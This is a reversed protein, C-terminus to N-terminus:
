FPKKGCHSQNHRSLSNSSTFVQSCLKCSYPKEGTHTRNHRILSSKRACAHSCLKCKFPKEGTHLKKHRTLNACRAFAQSCLNCKYPKAGSHTRNHLKLYSELNFAQPFMRCKYPKEDSHTRNHDKLHSSRAFAQPCLKCKDPKEGNHTLIHNKLTSSWAFAAFAQPCLKCKSLRDGRHIQTNIHVRSRSSSSLPNQCKVQEDGHAVLHSVIGHQDGTFYSCSCCRFWIDETAKLLCSTEGLQAAVDDLKSDCKIGLNHIYVSYPLRENKFERCRAKHTCYSNHNIGLALVKTDAILDCMNMFALYFRIEHSYCM